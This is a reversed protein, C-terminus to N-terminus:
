FRFSFGAKVGVSWPNVTKFSEPQNNNPFYYNGGLEVSIGFNNIFYYTGGIGANMSWLLGKTSLKDTARSNFIDGSYVSTTMRASIAKEAMFGGTLYVDFNNKRLVYYNVSLPIGLYHLRQRYKYNFQGKLEGTSELFSYNIGTQLSIHDTLEKRIGIGTTVPLYHRSLKSANYTVSNNQYSAETISADNQLFSSVNNNNFNRSIGSQSLTGSYISMDGRYDGKRQDYRRGNNDSFSRSVYASTNYNRMRSEPRSIREFSSAMDGNGNGSNVAIMDSGAGPFTYPNNISRVIENENNNRVSITGASKFISNLTNHNEPHIVTAAAVPATIPESGYFAAPKDVAIVMDKDPADFWMQSIGICAAIVIAAAAALKWIYSRRREGATRDRESLTLRRDMEEWSVPNVEMDHLKQKLIDDFRDRKM